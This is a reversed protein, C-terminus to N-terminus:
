GEERYCGHQQQSRCVSLRARFISAVSRHFVGLVPHLLLASIFVIPVLVITIAIAVLALVVLVVWVLSTKPVGSGLPSAFANPAKLCVFSFERHAFCYCDGFGGSERCICDCPEFCACGFNMGILGGLALSRQLHDRCLISEVRDDLV